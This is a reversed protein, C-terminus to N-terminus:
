AVHDTGEVNQSKALVTVDHCDRLVNDCFETTARLLDAVDQRGEVERLCWHSQVLKMIANKLQRRIHKLRRRSIDTEQASVPLEDRASRALDCAMTIKECVSARDFEYSM